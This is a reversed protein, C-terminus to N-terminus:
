DIRGYNDSFREIDDEGLYAGTQVEIIELSEKTRNTLRHLKGSPIYTSQNEVLEFIQDGNTVEATGSVVIWHEARYAHSQLSLSSMPNVHIRKVKFRLGEDLTDYWGWPRQVKRHVIVEKRGMAELQRVVHKINDAEGRASVLVSDTTEVIVLNDVGNLSVLRKTAYVLNGRSNTHVVDGQVANGQEDHPLSSWLAAWTGLDSWHSDYPIVKISFRSSPCHEIVACDISEHRVSKFAIADPRVFHGSTMSEQSRGVWSTQTASAIEPRFEFIAAQWVSARVAFVGANWLYDGSDLYEQAKEKIPKEVFNLVDQTILNAAHAVQIYGFGTAPKDPTIGLVVVSGLQAQEIAQYIVKTFAEVDSIYHDAPIVVLVPDRGDQMAALSALTLAPATDRGEPELLATVNEIGVERLQDLVLFRHENAAVVLLQELKILPSTLASLRLAAQQFLSEQGILSLFQKPFGLRSLPWLRTGSGGCLIVPVIEIM